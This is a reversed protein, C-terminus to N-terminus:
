VVEVLDPDPQPKVSLDILATLFPKAAPERGDPDFSYVQFVVTGADGNADPQFGVFTFNAWWFWRRAMACRAEWAHRRAVSQVRSGHDTNSFDPVQMSVGFRDSDPRKDADLDMEWVWDPKRSYQTGSPLGDPSVLIPDDLLAQKVHQNFPTAGPKIPAQFTASGATGRHWGQRRTKSALAGLQQLLDLAFVSAVTPQQARFSSATLQVFRTAQKSNGTAPDLQWYNMHSAFSYHVDGSYFIVRNRSNLRALIAEFLEPRYGWPEPDHEVRGFLLSRKWRKFPFKPDRELMDKINILPQAVSEVPPFGLFPAAAIVFCVGKPNIGTGPQAPIQLRMAQDTMLTASSDDYFPEKLLDNADTEAGRWTRSDLALVEFQPGDYRFDWRMRTSPDAGGGTPTDPLLTLDFKQELWAVVDDPPDLDDANNAPPNDNRSKAFMAEIKDLAQSQISSGRCARPDNGWYQFITFAALANRIVGRGLAYKRTLKQWKYTINWDDTVEHDDFIMYTPINALVRRIKPLDEYCWQLRHIRNFEESGKLQPKPKGNDLGIDYTVEFLEKGTFWSPTLARALRNMHDASVPDSPVSTQAPDVPLKVALQAVTSWNNWLEYLVGDEFNDNTSHRGWAIEVDSQKLFQDVWRYEAPLLRWAAFYKIMKDVADRIIDKEPLGLKEKFFNVAKDLTSLGPLGLVAMSGYDLKWSAEHLNTVADVYANFRTKADALRQKGDWDGWPVNCWGTLYTGCYEGFSMAHSDTHDSTFNAVEIMLHGRKSPPFHHIDCPVNFADAPESLDTGDAAKADTKKFEVRLKEFCRAANGGLWQGTAKNIVEVLEPAGEDAYIQDGTLHMQHPRAMPDTILTRLLDDIPAMADRGHGNTGRCSGQIMKLDRLTAPPLAFSPLWNAQYGLALHPHNVSGVTIPKDTLLGLDKLGVESESEPTIKVDYSYLGGWQLGSMAAPEWVAVAIHLGKGVDLTQCDHKDKQSVDTVKEAIATGLSGAEGVGNFIELRVTAKRTLAIWVAVLDQEVRRLIPGALVDAATM